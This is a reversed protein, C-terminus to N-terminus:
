VALMSQHQGLSIGNQQAAPYKLGNDKITCQRSSGCSYAHMGSHATPLQAQTSYAITGAAYGGSRDSAQSTIGHQVLASVRRQVKEDLIPVDAITFMKFFSRMGAFMHEAPEEFIASMNTIDARYAAFFVAGVACAMLNRKTTLNLNKISTLFLMSAWIGIVRQKRDVEEGHVSFLLVRMFTLTLVLMAKSGCEENTAMLVGMM